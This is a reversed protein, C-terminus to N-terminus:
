GSLGRWGQVLPKQLLSRKGASCCLRMLCLTTCSGSLFPIFALTLPAAQGQGGGAGGEAQGRGGGRRDGGGM